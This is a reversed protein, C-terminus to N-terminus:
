AAMAYLQQRGRRGLCVVLGERELDVRARACTKDLPSTGCLKALKASDRTGGALAALILRRFDARRAGAPRPAVKTVVVPAPAVTKPITTKYRPNISARVKHLITLHAQCFREDPLHKQDCWPWSHCKEGFKDAAEPAPTNWKRPKPM